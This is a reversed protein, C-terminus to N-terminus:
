KILPTEKNEKDVKEQFSKDVTRSEAKYRTFAQFSSKNSEVDMDISGRFRAGDELVVSAAVLNGKVNSSSMIAIREQGFIDGEVTGEVTVTKALLNAKINGQKGITLNNDKLDVTGDIQGQILLDEEGVLEGKFRIKPGIVATPLATRSKVVNSTAPGSNGSISANISSGINSNPVFSNSENVTVPVENTTRM